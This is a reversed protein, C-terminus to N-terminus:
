DLIRSAIALMQQERNSILDQLVKKERHVGQAMNVVNMQLDMPSVTIPLTELDVRRLNLQLVGTASQALHRQAPLQNIQWALFEPTIPVDAKVQIMFFHPSCVAQIPVDGLCVALNNNGRALVLIDGFKLFDPKKRGKLETRVLGSWDVSGDSNVDKMQVASVVGDKVEPVKGRFPFGPKIDAIEVLNVQKNKAGNSMVDFMVSVM